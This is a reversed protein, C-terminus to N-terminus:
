WGGGMIAMKQQYRSVASAIVDDGIRIGLIAQLIDQLAAIIGQQGALNAGAYDEMVLAVAEQITSLPAEINTGHTQDGVMAMFPKNPPLVAGKALYPIKPATIAWSINAFPAYSGIRFDKLQNLRSNLNTFPVSIVNNIGTILQNVVNKFGTLVGTKIDVFIDSDKSFVKRVSSWANQFTTQFYQETESFVTKVSSWADQASNPMNTFMGGLQDGVTGAVQGVAAGVNSWVTKVQSGANESAAALVYSDQATQRLNGGTTQLNGAADLVKEAVNGFASSLSYASTVTQQNQTNWGGTIQRIKEWCLQFIESKGTAVDVAGNLNEFLKQVMDPGQKLFQQLYDGEGLFNKLAQEARSIVAADGMQGGLRNLQDFDALVRRVPKGLTRILNKKMDKLLNYMQTYVTEKASRIAKGLDKDITRSFEWSVADMVAYLAELSEMNAEVAEEVNVQIDQKAM